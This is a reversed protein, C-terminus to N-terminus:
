LPFIFIFKNKVNKKFFNLSGTQSPRKEYLLIPCSILIVDFLYTTLIYIYVKKGALWALSRQYGLFANGVDDPNRKM